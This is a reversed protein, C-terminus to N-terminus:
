DPRLKRYGCGESAIARMAFDLQQGCDCRQSGLVDGTFCHSHIRVLPAGKAPHGLILAVATEVRPDNGDAWREFGVTLFYGWQTPLVTSAVRQVIGASQSMAANV